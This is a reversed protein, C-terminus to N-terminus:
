QCSSTRDATRHCSARRTLLWWRGCERANSSSTLLDSRIRRVREPRHWQQSPVGRVVAATDFRTVTVGDDDTTMEEVFRINADFTAGLVAARSATAGDPTTVAWDRALIREITSRERRPWAHALEQELARLEHEDDSMTVVDAKCIAAADDAAARRCDGPLHLEV